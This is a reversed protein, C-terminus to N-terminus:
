SGSRLRPLRVTAPRQHRLSTDLGLDLYRAGLVFRYTRCLELVHRSWSPVAANGCHWTSDSKVPAQRQQRSDVVLLGSFPALWRASQPPDTLPVTYSRNDCHGMRGREEGFMIHFSQLAPRWHHISRWNKSVERLALFLARLAADDNPFIRRNRTLKRLVMKLSEIANTTYIVKRIEPLSQFFPM